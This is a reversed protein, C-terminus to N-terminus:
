LPSVDSWPPGSTSRTEPDPPVGSVTPGPRVRTAARARTTWRRPVPSRLRGPRVTTAMAGRRDAAFPAPPLAPRPRPQTAARVAVPRGVVPRGVVPRAAAPRGVAPRGVAPRAALIASPGSSRRENRRGEARGLGARLRRDRIERGGVRRNPAAPGRTERDPCERANRGERADRHRALRRSAAQDPAARHTGVWARLGRDTGERGPRERGLAKPALANRDLAGPALLGRNPVRRRLIAPAPAARRGAPAARDGATARLGASGERPIRVAWGPTRGGPTRGVVM